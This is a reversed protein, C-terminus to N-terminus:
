EVHRFDPNKIRKVEIDSSVNLIMQLIQTETVTEFVPAM